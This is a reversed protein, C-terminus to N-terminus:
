KKASFERIGWQFVRLKKRRKAAPIEQPDGTSTMIKWSNESFVTHGKFPNEREGARGPWRSFYNGTITKDISSDGFMEMM